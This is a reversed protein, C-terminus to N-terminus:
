RRGRRQRRWRTSHASGCHRHRRWPRKRMSEDAAFEIKYNCLTVREPPDARPEAHTRPYERAVVALLDGVLEMGAVYDMDVITM